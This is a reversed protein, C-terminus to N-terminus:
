VGAILLYILVMPAAFLISDLRDLVGGHGPILNSSDKVGADRKLLSKGFDGFQGISGTIIGIAICHHLPLLSFKYIILPAAVWVAITFIFNAIAGEWTKGPSIRESVKHKGFGKGAFYAASDGVWISILLVLIFYGPPLFDFHDMGTNKITFYEHIGFMSGMGVGIYIMGFLTIATHEIPNPFGRFLEVSLIVIAALMIIIGLMDFQPSIISIGLPALLSQVRFKGFSLTILITFIIGLITQPSYGKAKALGYYEQVTLGALIVALMFFALPKTLVIFLVIPIAIVAFLIRQVLNSM